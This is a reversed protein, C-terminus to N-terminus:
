ASRASSTARPTTAPTPATSATARSTPWARHGPGRERPPATGTSCPAVASWSWACARATPRSPILYRDLRGNGNIDEGPDLVGNFNADEGAYTQMAWFVNNRLLARTVETDAQRGATSGQFAEPKLAGVFAFTATVTQGPALTPFPGVSTLGIWNGTATRGATQLRGQGDATGLFAARAAEYAAQSQFTAPDPYPRQM